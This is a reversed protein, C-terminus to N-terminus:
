KKKRRAKAQAPKGRRAGVSRKARAGPKASGRARSAPKSKRGAQASTSRPKTAGRSGSTRRKARSPKAAPSKAGGRTAVKVRGRPAKATARNTARAARRDRGPTSRSTAATTGEGGARVYAAVVLDPRAVRVARPHSDEYAGLALDALTDLARAGPEREGYAQFQVRVGTQLQPRYAIKPLNPNVLVTEVLWAALQERFAENSLPDGASDREVGAGVRALTEVVDDYPVGSAPVIFRRAWPETRKALEDAILRRLTEAIAM